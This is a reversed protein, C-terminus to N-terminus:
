TTDALLQQWINFTGCKYNMTLFVRQNWLSVCFVNMLVDFARPLNYSPTNIFWQQFFSATWVWLTFFFFFTNSYTTEAVSLAIRFKGLLNCRLCHLQVKRAICFAYYKWLSRGLTRWSFGLLTKKRKRSWVCFWERVNISVLLNRRQKETIAM